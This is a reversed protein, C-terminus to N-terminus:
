ENELRWIERDRRFPLCSLAGFVGLVFFLAAAGSGKGSGFLIILASGPRQATMLPEFVRDVLAGGLLYGVPITFFQFTNRASYVRGQMEVPIKLRFLADMNAGMVPIFLWGMVVGACWVPTSRGFALIFNETSMSFLLANLITRVRSKPPPLVTVLVSGLLTALGTVSNVTGLALEGGGARSLLMAPLAANYMSATLNIVALFFILHLIGANRRLYALGAKVSQRVTERGEGPKQPPKPIRVFGLLTLFAVGFTALDFLLVARLGAFLLAATAIAPTLMTVLSNSFSRMGAVKQYYRRPTLLSVAVDAAPRQVTNMLGNLANIVYLHGIQLRNVSLLYLVAVTTLAAFADSVLMAAKQNWRDSFAGAFVSLLVYPAYSCVSLLATNLASGQQRYSWVILAFGTMASGLESLSQTVWLTLFVRLDSLATKIHNHM